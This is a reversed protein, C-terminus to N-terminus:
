EKGQITRIRKRDFTKQKEKFSSMQRWLESVLEDVAECEEDRSSEAYFLPAHKDVSHVAARMSLAKGKKHHKNRVIDVEITSIYKSLKSLKKMEKELYAAIDGKSKLPHYRIDIHM